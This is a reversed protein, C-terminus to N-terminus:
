YFTHHTFNIIYCMFRLFSTLRIKMIPNTLECLPFLVMLGDRSFSMSTLGLARSTNSWAKSLITMYKWWAYFSCSSFAVKSCYSITLFEILDVKGSSWAKNPYTLIVRSECFIRFLNPFFSPNKTRLLNRSGKLNEDKPSILNIREMREGKEKDLGKFSLGERVAPSITPFHLNWLTLSVLQKRTWAYVFNRTVQRLSDLFQNLFKNM